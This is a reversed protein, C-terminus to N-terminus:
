SKSFWGRIRSLVRGKEKAIQKQIKGLTRSSTELPDFSSALAAISDQFDKVVEVLSPDAAILAELEKEDEETAAGAAHLAALLEAREQQENM